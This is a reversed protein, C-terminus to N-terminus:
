DLRNILGSFSWTARMAALILFMLNNASLFRRSALLWFVSTLYAM